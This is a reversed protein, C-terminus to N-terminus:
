WYSFLFFNYFEFASHNLHLFIVERAIYAIQNEEFQHLDQIDRLSGGDLYEMIIWLENEYLYCDYYKVVNPHNCAAMVAVERFNKAVREVDKGHAM